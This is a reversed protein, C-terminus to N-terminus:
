RLLEKCIAAEINKLKNSFFPYEHLTLNLRETVTQEKSQLLSAYRGVM